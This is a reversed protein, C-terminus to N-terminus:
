DGDSPNFLVTVNLATAVERQLDAQLERLPQQAWAIIEPQDHITSELPGPVSSLREASISLLEDVQTQIEDDIVLERIGRSEAGAWVLRVGELADGADQLSRGSPRSEILDPQPKGNAYDGNPKGLKMEHINEVTFAMYNVWLNLYAKSPPNAPSWRETWAEHLLSANVALDGTAGEVADCLRPHDTASWLLHEVVPFGRTAAGMSGFAETTLEGEGNLLADIANANAPWADILPGLREPYEVVPGFGITEAHKWPERASSWLTRLAEIDCSASAEAMQSARNNFEAYHGAILEYALSNLVADRAQNSTGTDTATNTCGTLLAALIPTIM